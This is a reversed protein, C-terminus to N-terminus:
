AACDLERWAHRGPWATGCPIPSPFLAAPGRERRREARLLHRSRAAAVAKPLFSLPFPSVVPHLRLVVRACRVFAAAMAAM